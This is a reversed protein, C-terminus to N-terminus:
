FAYPGVTSVVVKTDSCMARLAVEDTADALVIPLVSAEPGLSNRLQDLKERSRGAIAWKLWGDAGHRRMMYRCLIQGVFSTAGFIVLENTSRTM